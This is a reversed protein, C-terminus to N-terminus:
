GPLRITFVAGPFNFEHYNRTYKGQAAITPLLMAWASSLTTQVQALRASKVVMSKNRKKGMELAQELTLEREAQQANASVVPAAALLTAVALFVIPRNM